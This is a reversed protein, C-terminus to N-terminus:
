PIIINDQMIFNDFKDFIVINYMAFCDKKKKRKRELYRHLYRHMVGSDLRLAEILDCVLVGGERALRKFEGRERLVVTLRCAKKTRRKAM